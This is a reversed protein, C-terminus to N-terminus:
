NDHMFGRFLLFYNVVYMIEKGEGIKKRKRELGMIMGFRMGCERIIKNNHFM